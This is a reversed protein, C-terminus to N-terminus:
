LMRSLQRHYEALDPGLRGVGVLVRQIHMGDPKSYLGRLGSGGSHLADRSLVSLRLRYWVM